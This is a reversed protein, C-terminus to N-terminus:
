TPARATPSPGGRGIAMVAALEFVDAVADHVHQSAQTDVISLDATLGPNSRASAAAADYLCSSCAATSFASLVTRSRRSHRQRPVITESPVL